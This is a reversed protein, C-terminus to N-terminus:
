EMEQGSILKEADRANKNSASGMIQEVTVDAPIDPVEIVTEDLLEDLGTLREDEAESEVEMVADASDVAHKLTDEVVRAYNVQYNRKCGSMILTLMLCMLAVIVHIKKMTKPNILFPVPVSAYAQGRKHM